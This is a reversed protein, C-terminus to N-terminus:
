FRQLALREELGGFRAAVADTRSREIHMASDDIAHVILQRIGRPLGQMPSAAAYREPQEDSAAGMLEQAAGRGLAM